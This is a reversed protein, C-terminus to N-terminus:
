MRRRAVCACHQSLRFSPLLPFDPVIFQGEHARVIGWGITSLTSTERMIGAQIQFGHVRHASMVGGERMFLVGMKEFKEEQDKTFSEGTVGNFQVDAIEKSRFM